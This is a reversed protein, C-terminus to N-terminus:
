FRYSLGLSLLHPDNDTHHLREYEARIAFSGLHYQTGVGYAISGSDHTASASAVGIPDCTQTAPNYICSNPYNGLSDGHSRLEAAGIKGFLDFNQTPLPIYGVLFGALATNHVNARYIGGVPGLHATGFDMYNLELGLAHRPRIGVLVKWGTTNQDLYYGPSGASPAFSQIQSNGIAGGVYLGLSKPAPNPAADPAALASGATALGLHVLVALRAYPNKM